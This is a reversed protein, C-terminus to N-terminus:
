ESAVGTNMFILETTKGRAAHEGGILNARALRIITDGKDFLDTIIKHDANTLIYYAGKSKIYDILLSLRQQDRLSFLKHNYKIFGNNNHSTTYPPDLFVLDGERLNERVMEFDGDTIIAYKLRSSAARLIQSELFNKTRYGYPVNYKGKLNVRYIGNFSTQNLFIFRAAHEIWNKSSQSRISYYFQESNTYRSLHEIIEKPADRLAQYTTILETNLDSLYAREQPKISFFISGGGLFPEHYARYGSRPLLSALHKAFWNKGGAWRLFPKLPREDQEFEQMCLDGAPKKVAVCKLILECNIDGFKLADELDKQTTQRQNRRRQGVFWRKENCM